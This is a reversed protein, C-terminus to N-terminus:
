KGEKFALVIAVTVGYTVCAIAVLSDINLTLTIM